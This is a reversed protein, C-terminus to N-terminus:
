KRGALYFVLVGLAALTVVVLPWTFALGLKCLRLFSFSDLSPGATNPAPASNESPTAPGSLVPWKLRAANWEMRANDIATLARTLEM